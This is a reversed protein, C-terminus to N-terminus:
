VQESPYIWMKGDKMPISSTERDTCLSIKQDPAPIQNPPPMHNLSYAEEVPCSSDKAHDIPCAM